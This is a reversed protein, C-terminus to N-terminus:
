FYYGFDFFFHFLFVAITLGILMFMSQKSIKYVDRINEKCMFWLPGYFLVLTIIYRMSIRGEMNSFFYVISTAASYTLFMTLLLWGAKKRKWFYYVSIPLIFLPFLYEFANIDGLNRSNTFIYQFMSSKIFIRYVSIGTYILTILRIIKEPSQVGNEIPNFPTFFKSTNSKINVENHKKSELGREVKERTKSVRRNPNKSINIFESDSLNKYSDIPKDM